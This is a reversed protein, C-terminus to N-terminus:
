HPLTPQERPLPRLVKFRLRSAAMANMRSPSPRMIALRHPNVGSTLAGHLSLSPVGNRSLGLKPSLLAPADGVWRLLDGSELPQLVPKAAEQEGEGGRPSRGVMLSRTLANLSTVADRCWRRESGGNM